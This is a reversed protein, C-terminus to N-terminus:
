KNELFYYKEPLKPTFDALNANVFSCFHCAGFHLDWSVGQHHPINILVMKM